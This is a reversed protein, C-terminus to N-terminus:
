VDQHGGRGGDGKRLEEGEGEMFSALQNTESFTLMEFSQALYKKPPM